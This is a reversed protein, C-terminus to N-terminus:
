ANAKKSAVVAVLALAAVGALIAINTMDGTEVSDDAGGGLVIAEGNTDLVKAGVVTTNGGWWHQLAVKGYAGESAPDVFAGTAYLALSYTGDGNDVITIPKSAGDNGWETSAWGYDPAATNFVIGGGVGGSLDDVKITYEVGGVQTYDYENAAIWANVDYSVFTSGDSGTEELIYEDSSDIAISGAFASGLVMVATLSVALVMSLLKKM